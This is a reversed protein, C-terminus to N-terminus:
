NRNSFTELLSRAAHAPSMTEEYVAKELTTIQEVVKPNRYFQSKLHDEVLTHIWEISQGKRRQEFVGSEQTTDVFTTITDWTDDIGHGKLSSCTNVSPTWGPTAPTFFQLVNAYQSRALLAPKAFDGDAKNVVLGDALEVVGKKIGQLEDGAGPLLLLLFFDVLSRVSIESQGVGVTEVLIIDCGFAEFVLISERTKNAVGGLTGSSPSPRIFANPNRALKEMRTKDGLISGRTLTSSPDIALVAVKHGEDCLKLGLAEIFTSKGVGPSGTIGVRISKGSHPILKDLVTHAQDFHKSASSEILTITKALLTRNGALVGDVLEDISHTRPGGTNKTGSRIQKEPSNPVGGRVHCAFEKGPKEPVWDPRGETTM